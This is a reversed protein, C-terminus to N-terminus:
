NRTTAPVEGLEEYADLVGDLGFEVARRILDHLQPELFANRADRTLVERASLAFAALVARLEERPIGQQARRLALDHCYKRFVGRHRTRVSHTLNRLLQRHHWDHDNREATAYHPFRAPDARLRATLADFLEDEHEEFLRLIRVHPPHRTVRFRAENRATWIEPESRRNEILFPLRRLVDFRSRPSWDLRAQTHSANAVLQLDIMRVMWPREFPRRGTLRGTLDRGLLGLLALHRPVHLGRRPRGLAYATAEHFLEAHSTAGNPSALLTEAPKLDRRRELVRDLFITADRTHLYPVASAGRGGLLHSNWRGSLWTELFAYLPAYECWDSYLAALRVIVTPFRTEARMMQEGAAKSRAYATSGNPPSREDLAQGPSTFECAALSSAFVFRDLALDACADLLLRTGHVNTREYDPHQEGTFDYHAALHIVASLGDDAALRTVLRGLAERDCIDIVQWDLRPRRALAPPPPDRDVAVISWRGQLHDILRRGLFGAAGTILLRPSGEM